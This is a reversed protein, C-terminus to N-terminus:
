DQAFVLRRINSTSNDTKLWSNQMKLAHVICKKKNVTNTSSIPWKPHLKVPIM